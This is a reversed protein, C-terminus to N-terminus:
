FQGLLWQEAGGGYFIGYYLPMIIAAAEGEEVM